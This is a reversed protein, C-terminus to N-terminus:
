GTFFHSIFLIEYYNIYGRKEGQVIENKKQVM